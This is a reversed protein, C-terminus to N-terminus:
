DKDKKRSVFTSYGASKIHKANTIAKEESEKAQVIVSKSNTTGDMLQGYGNYGTSWVTGDEKLTITNGYGQGVIPVTIAGEQNRYVNVIAKAKLGNKSNYGTITTYGLTKGTVNNPLSETLKIIRLAFIQFRKNLQVADM